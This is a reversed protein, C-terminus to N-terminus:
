LRFVRAALWVGSSRRSLHAACPSPSPMSSCMYMCLIPVTWLFVLHTPVLRLMPVDRVFLGCHKPSFCFDCWVVFLLWLIFCTTYLVIIPTPSVFVSFPMASFLVCCMLLVCLVSPSSVVSCFHWGFCSTPLPFHYVSSPYICSFVRPSNITAMPSHPLHYPTTYQAM